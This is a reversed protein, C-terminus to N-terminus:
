AGWVTIESRRERLSTTLAIVRRLTGTESSFGYRSWRLEVVAGLELASIEASSLMVDRLVHTRRSVNALGLLRNAEADADAKATLATDREATQLRKHPNPSPTSTATAVRWEEALDAKRAETVSGGVENRKQVDGYRAYRLRITTTPVDEGSPVQEVERINWPALVLSATGTPADFRQLRLVGLRDVFYSAGVSRALEDLYATTGRSDNVVIGCVAANLADLATVDASSVDAGAWGRALVLTKILQAATSNGATDATCDVTVRYAPSSGLRLMGGALWVRYEGAAPATAEMAAQDAYTAGATLAVGGDYVAEVSQLARASAQYILRATNVQPPGFNYVKGYVLPKVKGKLDDVGEVGAPLSNTGAFTTTQHPSDLEYLRDKLGVTVEAISLTMQSVSARLLLTATGYAAGEEVLLVRAERERFSVGGTGGFLADLAGDINALRILGFGVKAQPNARVGSAGAEFLSRSISGPDIVRDDYWTNAPTDGPQTIYGRTAYRYVASVGTDTYGTLEVLYIPEAM